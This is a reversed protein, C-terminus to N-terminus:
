QAECRTGGVTLVIQDNAAAAQQITHTVRPAIGVNRDVTVLDHGYTVERPFRRRANNVSGSEM